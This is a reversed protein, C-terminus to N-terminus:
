FDDEGSGFFSQPQIKTYLMASELDVLNTWIVMPQGKVMKLCLWLQTEMCKFSIHPFYKRCQLSSLVAYIWKMYQSMKKLYFQYTM